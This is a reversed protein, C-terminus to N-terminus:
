NTKSWYQYLVSPTHMLYTRDAKGHRLFLMLLRMYWYNLFKRSFNVENLLTGARKLVALQKAKIQEQTANNNWQYALGEPKPLPCPEHGPYAQWPVNLVGLSSPFCKLWDMYFHHYLFSDIPQRVVEAIFDADYLPMEFEIRTLDMNEFHNFMHRRQDNLLLFLYFDRGKDLLHYSELEAQIGATIMNSLTKGLNKKLLRTHIGWKNYQTFCSIAKSQNGTRSAAVIDTNLYIHGLGLSGGDGSWIVSPKEPNRSLFEPTKLWESVAAKGYRDGEVLPCFQLHSFSAIEMRDAILKGFVEDESAPHSLNAAFIEAGCVKLGAVVARSDLGGSLLAAVTEQKRLRIKVADIFAEYLQGPIENESKQKSINSEPLVDWRWYRQRKLGNKDCVLVEGAHLTYIDTYPTRDSLPYGFCAIEAVGQLDLSKKFHSFDELVRLATSFLIYDPLIWCYVPRVGLKDSVLFLRQQKHDYITACYTGRCARLAVQRDASLDMALDRLSDLRSGPPTTPDHQLLPDGALYATLENGSFSGPEKLAGIDVKALYVRDDVFEERNKADEPHRSLTSRLAQILTDPINKDAQRAYIGAFFTM